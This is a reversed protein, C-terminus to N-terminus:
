NGVDFTLSGRHAPSDDDHPGSATIKVDKIAEITVVIIEVYDCKGRGLNWMNLVATIWGSSAPERYGSPM